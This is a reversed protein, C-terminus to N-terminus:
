SIGSSADKPERMRDLFRVLAAKLAETLRNGVWDQRRPDVDIAFTYHGEDSHITVLITDEVGSVDMFINNIKPLM